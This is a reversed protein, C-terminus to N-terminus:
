RYDHLYGGDRSGSDTAEHIRFLIPFLVLAAGLNIAIQIPLGEFMAGAMHAGRSFFTLLLWRVAPWLVTATITVLVLSSLSRMYLLRGLAVVAVCVMTYAIAGFGPVTSVLADTLYGFVFALMLHRVPTEGLGLFAVFLLTFQPGCGHIPVHIVFFNELVLGVLGVVAFLFLRM